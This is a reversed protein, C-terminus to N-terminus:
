PKLEQPLISRYLVILRLTRFNLLQLVTTLLLRRHFSKTLSLHRFQQLYVNSSVTYSNFMTVARCIVNHGLMQLHPLNNRPQYRVREWLRILCWRRFIARESSCGYLSSSSSISCFDNNNIFSPHSRKKVLISAVSYRITCWVNASVPSIGCTLVTERHYHSKSIIITAYQGWM